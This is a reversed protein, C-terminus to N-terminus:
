YRGTFRRTWDDSDGFPSAISKLNGMTFQLRHRGSAGSGFLGSAGFERTTNHGRSVLDLGGYLRPDSGYAWSLRPYRPRRAPRIARQPQSSGVM